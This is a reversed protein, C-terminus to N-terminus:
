NQILTLHGRAGTRVTRGDVSPTGPNTWAGKVGHAHIKRHVAKEEAEAPIIKGQRDPIWILPKYIFYRLGESNEKFIGYREPPMQERFPRALDLAIIAFGGGRENAIRDHEAWNYKGKAVARCRVEGFSDVFVFMTKNDQGRFNEFSSELKKYLSSVDQERSKKPIRSPDAVDLPVCEDWASLNPGSKPPKKM